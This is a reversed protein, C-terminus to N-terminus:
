DSVAISAVLQDLCNLAPTFGGDPTNNLMRLMLTYYSELEQERITSTLSPFDLGGDPVEVSEPMEQLYAANVPLMVSVWYEGDRTIGQYTYFLDRNNVPASYQALETLWRVGHVNKSDLFKVQAHFVQMMNYGPLIPLTDGEQWTQAELLEQMRAISGASLESMAAFEEVPFVRILPVFYKQQLPYRELVIQRHQPFVMLPGANASPLVAPVISVMPAASLCAPMVFFVQQLQYPTDGITPVPTPTITITPTPYRLLVTPSVVPPTPTVEQQPSRCASLALCFIICVLVISNKM